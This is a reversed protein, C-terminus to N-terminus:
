QIEALQEIETDSWLMCVNKYENVVAKYIKEDKKSDENYGFNSCFDGITEPDYNTLCALVDYETPNQIEEKRVSVAETEKLKEAVKKNIHAIFESVTIAKGAYRDRILKKSKNFIDIQKQMGENALTAYKLVEAGTLKFNNEKLLEFKTSGNFNHGAFALGVFMKLKNANVTKLQREFNCTDSISSGFNFSYVGKKNSLTIKFINRKDKDGEFHKDYKLFEAKFTTNTDALFKKAQKTYESM